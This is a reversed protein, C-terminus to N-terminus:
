AIGDTLSRAWTAVAALQEDTIGVAPDVEVLETAAGAARRRELFAERAAPYVGFDDDLWALPRGAAYRAVPGYKWTFPRGSLPQWVRRVECCCRGSM